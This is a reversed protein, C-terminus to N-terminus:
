GDTVAEVGPLVCRVRGLPVTGERLMVPEDGSCDIITSTASPDLRGGDLILLDTRLGLVEMADGAEAASLAPAEGLMNASTSILPEDLAQGLDRVLPHPSMRIAVTGAPSRVGMPFLGAEDRLVITVSGPWFVDALDTAAPTWSLGEVSERSPVLLLFPKKAKRNKATVLADLVTDTVVGGLGYVTETPYVLLRGARLHDVVPGLDPGGVPYSTCDLQEVSM